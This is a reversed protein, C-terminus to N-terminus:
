REVTVHYEYLTTGPTYTDWGDNIEAEFVMTIRILHEGEPWGMLVISFERCAAGDESDYDTIIVNEEPVAVDNIEFTYSIASFNQELTEWDTACWGNGAMLMRSRPLSFSFDYRTTNNGLLSEEPEDDLFGLFDTGVDYATRAEDATGAYPGGEAEDMPQETQAPADTSASAVETPQAPVSATDGTGTSGSASSPASDFDDLQIAAMDLFTFEGATVEDPIPFYFTVPQGDPANPYIYSMTLSTNSQLTMVGNADIGGLIYEVGESDTFAAPGLMMGTALSQSDTTLNTLITEVALFSFGPNASVSQGQNDRLTENSLSTSIVELRWTENEVIPNANRSGGKNLAPILLTIAAIIMVAVIVFVLAILGIKPKKQVVPIPSYGSSHSAPTASYGAASGKNEEQLARHTAEPTVAAVPDVAPYKTTGSEIERKLMAMSEEYRQRQAAGGDSYSAGGKPEGEVMVLLTSDPGQPTLIFTTDMWSGQLTFSKGKEVALLTSSGGTVWNASAGTVWDPTVSQMGGGWWKQWNVPQTLYTWVDSVPREISTSVTIM